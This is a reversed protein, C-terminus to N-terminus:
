MHKNENLFSEQSKNRSNKQRTQSHYSLLSTPPSVLPFICPPLYSLIRMFSLIIMFSGTFGFMLSEQLKTTHMTTLTFPVLHLSPTFTNHHWKWRAQNNTKKQVLATRTGLEVHVFLSSSAANSQFGSSEPVVCFSSTLFVGPLISDDTRLLCHIHAISMKTKYIVPPKSTRAFGWAKYLKLEFCM